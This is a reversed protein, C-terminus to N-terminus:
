FISQHLYRLGFYTAPVLVVYNLADVTGSALRATAPQESLAAVTAVKLFMFPMAVAISAVFWLVPVILPRWLGFGWDAFIMIFVAVATTVAVNAKSTATAEVQYAQTSAIDSFSLKLAQEGAIV